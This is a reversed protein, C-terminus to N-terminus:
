GTRVVKAWAVNCLMSHQDRPTALVCTCSMFVMDLFIIHYHSKKKWRREQQARQWKEVPALANHM